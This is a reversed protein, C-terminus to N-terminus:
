ENGKVSGLMIELELHNIRCQQNCPVLLGTATSTVSPHMDAFITTHIMVLLRYITQGEVILDGDESLSPETALSSYIGAMLFLSIAVLFVVTHKRQFSKFVSCHPTKLVGMIDMHKGDAWQVGEKSMLSLTTTPQAVCTGFMQTLKGDCLGHGMTVTVRLAQSPICCVTETIGWQSNCLRYFFRFFRWGLWPPCKTVIVFTRKDLYLCESLLALM